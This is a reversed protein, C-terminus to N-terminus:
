RAGGTSFTAMAVGCTSIAVKLLKAHPGVRGVGLPASM